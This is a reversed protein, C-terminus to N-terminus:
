GEVVLSLGLAGGQAFPDLGLVQIVILAIDELLLLAEQRNADLNQSGEVGTADHKV